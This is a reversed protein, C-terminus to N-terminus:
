RRGGDHPARRAPRTPGDRNLSASRGPPAANRIALRKAGYSPRWAGLPRRSVRATLWRPAALPVPSRPRPRERDGTAVTTPVPVSGNQRQHQLGQDLRTHQAVPGRTDSASSKLSKGTEARIPPLHQLVAGGESWIVKDPGFEQCRDWPRRMSTGCLNDRSLGTGLHEDVLIILSRM